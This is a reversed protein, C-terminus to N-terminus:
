PPSFVGLKSSEYVNEAIALVESLRGEVLLIDIKRIGEQYVTPGEEIGEIKPRGARWRKRQFEKRWNLLVQYLPTKSAKAGALERLDPNHTAISKAAVTPQQECGRILAEVALVARARAIWLQPSEQPRDFVKAKNFLPVSRGRNLAEFALALDYFRKAQPKDFKAVFTAVATLANQCNIREVELSGETTLDTEPPPVDILTELLQGTAQLWIRLKDDMSVM